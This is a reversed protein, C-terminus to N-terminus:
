QLVEVERSFYQEANVQFDVLSTFQKDAASTIRTQDKKSLGNEFDEHVVVSRFIIDRKQFELCSLAALRAKANDRVGYLFIPRPRAEFRWDVELDDRDSMPLYDPQPRYRVLTSTIFDGLMEYFLSQVVERKFAQMSSVKAVTQAFQLLAPYLHEATTDLYLRGRDESIGNESLIRDFIRRKTPTDVDYSYSLRMLTLGHDSIRLPVGAIRPMDLFIDIMDGDEHFLPALIQVVGPRKERFEIHRNFEAKLDDFVTM